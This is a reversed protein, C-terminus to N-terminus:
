TRRVPPRTRRHSAVMLWVARMTSTRTTIGTRGGSQTGQMESWRVRTTESARSLRTENRRESSQKGGERERERERKRDIEREVKM